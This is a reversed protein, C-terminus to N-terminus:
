GEVTFFHALHEFKPLTVPVITLSQTERIEHSLRGLINIKKLDLRM